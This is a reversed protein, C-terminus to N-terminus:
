GVKKRRIQPHVARRKQLRRSNGERGSGKGKKQALRRKGISESGRRQQPSEKKNRTTKKPGRRGM